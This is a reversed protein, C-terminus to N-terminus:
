NLIHMAARDPESENEQESSAGACRRLGLRCRRCQAVRGLRQDSAPFEGVGIAVLTAGDCKAGVNRGRTELNLEVAGADTQIREHAVDRRPTQVLAVEETQEVGLAAFPEDLLVLKGGWHAFRNLEIAQRQGGSLHEVNVRLSPIRTGAEGIAKATAAEMEREQLIPIGFYRKVIERGMFGLTFAVSDGSVAVSTVTPRIKLEDSAGIYEATWKGDREAFAILMTTEEGRDIPVTLKWNGAVGGRAGPQKAAPADKKPPDDARGLSAAAILAVALLTRYM